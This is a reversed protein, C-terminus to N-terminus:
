VAHARLAAACPITRARRHSRASSNRCRDSATSGRSEPMASLSVRASCNTGVDISILPGSGAVVSGRVVKSGSPGCTTTAGVSLAIM